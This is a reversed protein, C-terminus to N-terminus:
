VSDVEAVTTVPPGNMLPMLGQGLAAFTDSTRYAEFDEPSEWQQVIAISDDQSGCYIQYTSCGAMARVSDAQVNFLSVATDAETVKAEVTILKM